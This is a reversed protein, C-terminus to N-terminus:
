LGLFKFLYHTISLEGMGGAMRPHTPFTNSACESDMFGEPATAHGKPISKQDSGNRQSPASIGM